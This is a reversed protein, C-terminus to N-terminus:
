RYGKFYVDDWDGDSNCKLLQDIECCLADMHNGCAPIFQNVLKQPIDLFYIEKIDVVGDTESTETTVKLDYGFVEIIHKEQYGSVWDTDNAGYAIHGCINRTAQLTM